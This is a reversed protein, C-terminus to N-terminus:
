GFIEKRLGRIVTLGKWDAGHLENVKPPRKRGKDLQWAEVYGRVFEKSGFIAGDTFYRVRCRLVTAKPLMAGKDELVDLVRKREAGSLGPEWGRTGFILERHAQLAM